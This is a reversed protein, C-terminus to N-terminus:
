EVPFNRDYKLLGSSLRHQVDLHQIIETEEGAKGLFRSKM